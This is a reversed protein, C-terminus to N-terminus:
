KPWDAPMWGPLNAVQERANASTPVGWAQFFPGLNRNAARSYRILWQDRKEDDTRPRPNPNTEYDRLVAQLTPWGFGEILQAYMVLALFPEQKWREFPAGDALYRPLDKRKTEGIRSWLPQNAVREMIWLSYLNCTVEVTGDFTWADRQHNHGLEHWHGWSGESTLKQVNTVLDNVDLHTMIPYGAHMYGASIQRDSVFREPRPPLPRGDLEKYLLMTRHWLGTLEAMDPIRRATETPVTIILHPTIIEAWPAGAGFNAEWDPQTAQGHVYQPSPVAGEITVDVRSREGAPTVIYVLGGFPSRIKTVERTLPQRRLISPHRKWETLHWIEDSHAGIQVQLGRKTAAPPIRVTIEQGPAAYRATSVWQDVGLPVPVTRPVSGANGSVPGPFDFTLRETEGTLDDVALRLRAMANSSKLPTQESPMVAPKRTAVRVIRRAIPNDSPVARLTKLVIESGSADSGEVRRLAEDSRLRTAESDRPIARVRDVLGDGFAIGAPALLRNVDLDRSLTKGPNTMLWGWPTTGVILGVGSEIAPRFPTLPRYGDTIIVSVQRAEALTTVLRVEGLARFRPVLANETVGIIRQGNRNSRAAWKVANTFVTGAPGDPSLFADHGFAVVRGNRLSGAVAVPVTAGSETAELFPTARETLALTVGPIAGNFNIDRVDNTLAERPNAALLM